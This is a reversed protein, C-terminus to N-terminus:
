HNEVAPTEAGVNMEKDHLIVFIFVAAWKGEHGTLLKNFENLQTICERRRERERM